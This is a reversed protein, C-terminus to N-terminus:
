LRIKGKHWDIMFHIAARREDLIGGKGLMNWKKALELLIEEPELSPNVGYEKELSSPNNMKLLKILEYAVIDPNDLKSPSIGSMLGLRIEDRDEFPVVGPTDFLMLGNRGKILQLGRTFGSEPSTRAIGGKSLKNLLSSKGTNPYGIFAIKTAEKKVRSRILRYLDSLGASTKSSLLLYDLGQYRERIKTLTDASVIDAKNIVLILQKGLSAAYAEMRKNRTIEPMRADLVELIIDAKRIIDKVVYWFGKKM